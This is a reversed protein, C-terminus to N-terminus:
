CFTARLLLKTKTAGLINKEQEKGTTIEEETKLESAM